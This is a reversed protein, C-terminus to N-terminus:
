PQSPPPEPCPRGELVWELCDRAGCAPCNLPRDEPVLQVVFGHVNRARARRGGGGARQSREHAAKRLGNTNSWRGM